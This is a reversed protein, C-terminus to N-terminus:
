LGELWHVLLRVPSAKAGKALEEDFVSTMSPAMDIHAFHPIDKAFHQLFCGATITGGPGSRGKTRINSIDGVTGKIETEYEDWLPLRWADDGSALGSSCLAEALADDKSLVAAAREGLAVEAAGTLTSVEVMTEPKYKKAYAIADGLILRGEADTHGIEVHTGDFMKIVDGPRFSEGGPMNEVAPVLAVLNHRLRLDHAILLTTLVAAGGSMDMMMELAYPHPKTDLGGTDFTVGKGVLVIPKENAKGGKYELIMFQSEEKSGQGVAVVGGMGLKTIEKQGLVKLTLKKGKIAKRIASVFKKPTMDNGPTNALDRCFNLQEGVTVGQKVGARVVALEKEAVQVFVKKVGTYEDKKHNKYRTFEYDALIINEALQRAQMVVEGGVSKKQQWDKWVLVVEATEHSKAARLVKRVLVNWQRRSLEQVDKCPIRLTEQGNKEAFKVSKVETSLEVVVGKKVEKTVVIQM